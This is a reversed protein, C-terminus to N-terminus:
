GRTKGGAIYVEISHAKPAIEDPKASRKHQRLNYRMEDLKKAGAESSGDGLASVSEADFVYEGPSVNVQVKDDQGGSDGRILGKELAKNALAILVEELGGHRSSEAEEEVPEVEILGGDKYFSRVARQAPRAGWSVPASTGRAQVPKTDPQTLGYLQAGMQGLKLAGQLAKLASGIPMSSKVKTPEGYANVGYKQQYAASLQPAQLALAPLLSNEYNKLGESFWKPNLGEEDVTPLSEYSKAYDTLYNAFADRDTGFNYKDTNPLTPSLLGIGDDAEAYGLPSVYDKLSDLVGYKSSLGSGLYDEVASTPTDFSLGGGLDYSPMSYDGLGKFIDEYSPVYSSSLDFLNGLDFSPTLGLDSLQFDYVPDSYGGTYSSYDFLDDDM